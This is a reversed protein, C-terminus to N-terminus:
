ENGLLNLGAQNLLEATEFLPLGMIGSYSGSLHNIFLAGLGQVAYGGAKDLPEGSDWYAAMESDLLTRFSVRSDSLRYHEVQGDILAVGTLVRHERGSLASLMAIGEARNHPKGLIRDDVVVVTDAGLVPHQNQLAHGARAKSLALRQVYDEPSEDAHLTEDVPADLTEHPVGIQDLLEHRRPSQSALYIM